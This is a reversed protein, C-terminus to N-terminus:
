MLLPDWGVMAVLIQRQAQLRSALMTEQPEPMVEVVAVLATQRLLRHLIERSLVTISLYQLSIFIMILQIAKFEHIQTGIINSYLIAYRFFSIKIARVYTVKTPAPPYQLYTLKDQILPRFIVM